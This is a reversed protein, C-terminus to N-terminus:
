RSYKEQLMAAIAATEQVNRGTTKVRMSLGRDDWFLVVDVLGDKTFSHIYTGFKPQFPRSCLIGEVYESHCLRKAHDRLVDKGHDDRLNDELGQIKDEYSLKSKVLEIESHEEIWSKFAEEELHEPATLCPWKVDVDEGDSMVHVDHMVNAWFESSAFGISPVDYVYASTLGASVEQKGEIEVSALTNEYAKYEKEDDPNVQPMTASSLIALVGAERKHKACFDRLTVDESLKIGALDDDYRVIKTGLSSQAEKITRAYLTVRKHMDTEDACLPQLTLENFTVQKYKKDAMARICTKADAVDM